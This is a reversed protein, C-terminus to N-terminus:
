AARPPGGDTPPKPADPGTSAVSEFAALLEDMWDRPRFRAAANIVARAARRAVKRDAPNDREALIEIARPVLAELGARIARDTAVADEQETPDDQEHAM